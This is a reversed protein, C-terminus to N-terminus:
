RCDVYGSFAQYYELFGTDCEYVPLYEFLRFDAEPGSGPLRCLKRGDLVQAESAASAILGASASMVHGSAM